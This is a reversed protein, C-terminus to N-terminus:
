SGLAQFRAHLMSLRSSDEAAIAGYFAAKWQLWLLEFRVAETIGAEMDTTVAINYGFIVKRTEYRDLTGAPLKAFFPISEATVGGGITTDWGADRAVSCIRSCLELMTNSTVFDRGHGLSGALDNRGIVVGTLEAAQSHARMVDINSVSQITEVNMALAVPNDVNRPFVRVGATLFKSMAYASEVMPAVVRDVGLLEADYLDRIAEPGGTKLAMSLGAQSVIDKLKMAEALRTGEAEFEAKVGVAGFDAKLRKLTETMRQEYSM